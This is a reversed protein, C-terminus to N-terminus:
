LMSSNFHFHQYPVHNKRSDHGNQTKNHFLLKGFKL